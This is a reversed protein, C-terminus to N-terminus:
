HMAFTVTIIRLQLKTQKTYGCSENQFANLLVLLLACKM